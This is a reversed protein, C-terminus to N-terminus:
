PAVAALTAALTDLTVPKSLIRTIGPISRNEALLQEAWGTLLVVPTRPSRDAVQRAIEEGSADPLGLDTLVVDFSDEGLARTGDEVSSALRPRHGLRTLGQDLFERVSDEDEVILIRLSRCAVPATAAGAVPRNAAKASALPLRVTFVTGQGEKSEVDIEGSHRQVIGFAVSLGLGNGREGKTTFFPEFLRHRVAVAIGVGTDRVSLFANSANKWSRITLTGGRPMAEVANFALNTLVERLEAPNGTVFASPETEVVVRIPGNGASGIGEWKHRILEVTHRVFDGLELLQSTLENRRWRAFDQVRRVTQAADTACTRASELFGRVTPDLTQSLLGLELFGLVGCLANNFEHAVGGALEGLARMKEAQILQSQTKRLEEYAASLRRFLQSNSIAPGLLDAVLYLLQLQEGTFGAPRTCVSQLVGVSREGARLPVAFCSVAGGNALSRVQDATPGQAERTLSELDAYFACGDALCAGFVTRDAPLRLGPTLAMGVAQASATCAATTLLPPSPLAEVGATRSVGHDDPAPRPGEEDVLWVANAHLPLLRDLERVTVALISGLDFNGAATHAVQNLLRLRNLLRAEESLNAQDLWSGIPALLEEEASTFEPDGPERLLYLVGRSRGACNLPVALLPGTEALSDDEQWLRVGRELRTPAPQRQATQLLRLFAPSQELTEAVSPAAGMTLHEILEGETTLLGIGARSATVARFALELLHALRGPSMKRPTCTVRIDDALIEAGDAITAQAPATATGNSSRPSETESNPFM